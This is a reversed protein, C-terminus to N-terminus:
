ARVMRKGCHPCKPRSLYEIVALGIVGGAAGLLVAVVFGWRPHRTWWSATM